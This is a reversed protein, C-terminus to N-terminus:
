SITVLKQQWGTAGNPFPPVREEPQTRGEGDTARVTLTHSGKEADWELYWQRWLDPNDEPSLTAELWPGDDIRVEVKDIGRHMAYAFGAVVVKGTRVAGGSPSPVDIRSFTKVPATEDWDRETWYAQRAAYSTLEMDVIWKTASVYGFLGPVLMRVPFGHEPLLPEDNMAVALMSDRGDMVVKTQVSLTFGDVATTFIQEASKDAGLEELLPTLPVGIWRATGNLNQGIQNSVCALTIDREVLDRELLDDLTFTRETGVMGHIRLSWESPRVQPVTLATDVRYFESSKTYFPTLGDIRKALDAGPVLAPAPMAPKPISLKARDASIDFRRKLFLGLGGTVAAAGATAGSAILFGRRNVAMKRDIGALEERLRDVREGAVTSPATGPAPPEAPGTLRQIMVPFAIVAAAAGVASPLLDLPGGAPATVAAIVGVAGFLAIGFVGIEVRRLSAVGIALAFVGLVIFIGIKLYYKDDEGFWEIALDKLWEPTIRIFGQGVADIPASQQSIFAAVLEGVGLALGAAIIGALAAYARRLWRGEGQDVVVPAVSGSEPESSETVSM